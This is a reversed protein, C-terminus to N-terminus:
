GAKAFQPASNGFKISNLYEGETSLLANYMELAAKTDITHQSLSNVLNGSHDITFSNFGVEEALEKNLLTLTLHDETFFLHVLSDANNYRIAFIRNPM